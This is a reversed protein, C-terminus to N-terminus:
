QNDSALGVLTVSGDTYATVEACLWRIADTNVIYQRTNNAATDNNITIGTDGTIVSSPDQLDYSAIYDWHNASTRAASFDPMSESCSAQFKVTFSANLPASLQLSLHRFNSVSMPSGIGTAAKADLIKQNVIYQGM